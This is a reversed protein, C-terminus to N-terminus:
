WYPYRLLYKLPPPKDFKRDPDIRNRTPMNQINGTVSIAVPNIRKQWTIQFVHPFVLGAVRGCDAHM